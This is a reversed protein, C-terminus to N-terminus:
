KIWGRVERKVRALQEPTGFYVTGFSPGGTLNNLAVRMCGIQTVEYVLEFEGAGKSIQMGSGPLIPVLARSETRTLSLGIRAQAQTALTYRGRVLVRSGIALGSSDSLVEVITVSDGEPFESPGVAVAVPLLARAAFATTVAFLVLLGIKPYMKMPNKEDFTM